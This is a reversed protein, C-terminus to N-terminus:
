TLVTGLTRLTVRTSVTGITSVPEGSFGLPVVQYGTDIRQFGVGPSSEYHLSPNLGEREVGLPPKHSVCINVIYGVTKPPVKLRVQFPHHLGPQFISLTKNQVTNRVQVFLDSV